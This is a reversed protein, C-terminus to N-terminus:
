VNCDHPYLRCIICWYYHCLVLSPYICPCHFFCVSKDHSQMFVGHANYVVVASYVYVYDFLDAFLNLVFERMALLDSIVLKGHSVKHFLVFSEADAQRISNLM